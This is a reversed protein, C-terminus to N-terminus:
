VEMATLSIDTLTATGGTVAALAVDIWLATNLTLGSVIASVTFPVKGLVTSAIYQVFGGAVTGALAGGNGPVTGTGTRIQVKAGDAIATPNFITGCITIHVRGTIKPTISGALGMMLGTTNATGTPNPPTFQAVAPFGAFVSAIGLATTQFLYGNGLAGLNESQTLQSNNTLLLFRADAPAADLEIGQQLRLQFDQWPRTFRGNKDLVTQTFPPPHPARSVM